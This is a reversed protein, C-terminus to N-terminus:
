FSIFNVYFFFQLGGIILVIILSTLTLFFCSAPILLFSIKFTKVSDVDWIIVNADKSGTALMKGKNSFQCCLVEDTHETLIQQTVVPFNRSCCVNCM